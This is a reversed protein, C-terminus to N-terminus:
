TAYTRLTLQTLVEGLAHAAIVGVTESPTILASTIHETIWDIRNQYEMTELNCILHLMLGIQTPFEELLWRQVDVCPEGIPAPLNLLKIDIPLVKCSDNRYHPIDFSKLQQQLGIIFEDDTMLELEKCLDVRFCRGLDYMYEDIIMGNFMSRAGGIYSIKIHEMSKVLRRQLYGSSATKLATDSIGERGSQSSYFFETPTMSESYSHPIFADHFNIAKGELSQQGILVTMQSINIMNGKTSSRGVINMLSNKKSIDSSMIVNNIRVLANGTVRQKHSTLDLGTEDEIAHLRNLQDQVHDLVRLTDPKTKRRIEALDELSITVATYFTTYMVGMFHIDSMFRTIYKKHSHYMSHLIGHSSSGMQKKKLVGYVLHGNEICISNDKYNFDDPLFCSVLEHGSYKVPKKIFKGSSALDCWTSVDLIVEEHTLM